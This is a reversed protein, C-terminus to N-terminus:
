YRGRVTGVQPGEDVIGVQLVKLLHHQVPVPLHAVKDGYDGRVKDGNRLFEQTFTRGKISNPSEQTSERVEHHSKDGQERDYNQHMTHLVGDADEVVGGRSADDGHHLLEHGRLAQSEGPVLITSCGQM